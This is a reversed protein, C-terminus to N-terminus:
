KKGLIINIVCERLLSGPDDGVSVLQTNCEMLASLSNVLESQRYNGVQSVVRFIVYPNQSLPNFRRDSPFGAKNVSSLQSRFSAFSREVRLKGQIVLDKVLLMNRFKSILGYLLGIESKQRDTRMSWLEEDLRLLSTRLNRDAVADAFAFAKAQRTKVVTADVDSESVEGGSGSHLIAKECESVLARRDLGVWRVLQEAVNPQMTKGAEKVHQQVMRIAIGEGREGQAALSECALVSGSKQMWKYFRKRKDIGNCSLLLRTSGWECRKLVDLLGDLADGTSRSQAVRGDSGLFNCNRFWVLTGDGFLSLNDLAATLAAISGAMERVTSASGDVFDPDVNPLERRWRELVEGCQSRVEFDDDGYILVLSASGSSSAPTASSM